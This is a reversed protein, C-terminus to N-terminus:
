GYKGIFVRSNDEGYKVYHKYKEFIIVTRLTILVM